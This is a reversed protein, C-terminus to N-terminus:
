NSQKMDKMDEALKTLQDVIKTLELGQASTERKQEQLMESSVSSSRWNMERIKLSCAYKRRWEPVFEDILLHTRLLSIARNVQEKKRLETFKETFGGSVCNLVMGIICLIFVVLLVNSLLPYSGNTNDYAFTDDYGFDGLMMTITKVFSYPMSGFTKNELFIFHFSVAFALLYLFLPLLLLAFPFLLMTDIPILGSSWLIKNLTAVFHLWVLLVALVELQWVIFQRCGLVFDCESLALVLLGLSVLRLLRWVRYVYETFTNTTGSHRLSFPSPFCKTLSVSSVRRILKYEILVHVILLIITLVELVVVSPAHQYLHHVACVSRNWAASSVEM